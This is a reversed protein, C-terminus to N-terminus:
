NFKIAGYLSSGVIAIGFRQTYTHEWQQDVRDTGSTDGDKIFAVGENVLKIFKDRTQPILLILKDDFVFEDSNQKHMAPIEETAIGAIQGYHGLRNREANSGDDPIKVDLENLALATGFIVVKEGIEAEIHKAMILIDRETPVGTVTKRYATDAGVHTFTQVITNLLNEKVFRAISEAVKNAMDVTDVRGAMFRNFEEYVSVGYTDLQIGFKEGQRLRQRRLNKNGDSITAVRFWKKDPTYFENTDGLALNKYEVFEEFILKIEDNVREELIEELIEFIETKYKRMIKQPVMQAQDEPLGLMDRFGIRLAESPSVNESFEKPLNVKGRVIDRGLSVIANRTM